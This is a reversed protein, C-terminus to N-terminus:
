GAKGRGSGVPEATGEEEGECIFLVVQADEDIRIKCSRGEYKAVPVSDLGEKEIEPFGEASTIDIVDLAIEEAVNSEFRGKNILDMLEHCPECHPSTFFRITKKAM